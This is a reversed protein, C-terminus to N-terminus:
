SVPVLLVQGAYIIGHQRGLLAANAKQIAAWYQEAAISWLTDGPKVVYRTYRTPAAKIVTHERVPGPVTVTHTVTHSVVVTTHSAGHALIVVVWIVLAAALAGLLYRGYHSRKGHRGRTKGM